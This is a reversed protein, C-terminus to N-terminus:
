SRCAQERHQIILAEHEALTKSFYTVGKDKCAGAVFYLWDTAAPAVVAQLSLASVNSTPGPPLGANLYTNYASPYDSYMEIAQAHTLGALKGEVAAGYLTTADSELARGEKLRKLFVQAVQPKDTPIESSVEGEIISALIVGQYVSLGQRAIGARVEPTLAEAMEDLSSSIITQVKTEAVRQYSDPYLYGELSATAPKDVLAPHGSYKAPDLAADVENASFGKDIFDQRIEDLRKEPFITFLGVDVEGDVLQQVVSAVDQTVNFRYTGAKLVDGLEHSTVYRQFAWSARIVGKAKLTKAIEEVSSGTPIAVVVERPESSNVARLNNTYIRRAGLVGGAALFILLIFIILVTKPWRRKSGGRLSITNM